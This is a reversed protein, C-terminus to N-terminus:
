QVQVQLDGGGILLNSKLREDMCRLYNDQNRWPPKYWKAFSHPQGINKPDNELYEKWNSGM